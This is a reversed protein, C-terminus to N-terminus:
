ISGNNDEQTTPKFSKIVGDEITIISNLGIWMEYCGKPVVIVPKDLSDTTPYVNHQLESLTRFVLDKNSDNFELETIDPESTDYIPKQWNSHNYCQKCMTSYKKYRFVCTECSMTCESTKLSYVDCSYCRDDHCEKKRCDHCACNECGEVKEFLENFSEDSFIQVVNGFKVLWDYPKTDMRSAKVIDFKPKYKEM